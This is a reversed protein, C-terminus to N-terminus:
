PHSLTTEMKLMLGDRLLPIQWKSNEFGVKKGVFWWFNDVAVNSIAFMWDPSVGLKEFPDGVKISTTTLCCANLIFVGNWM